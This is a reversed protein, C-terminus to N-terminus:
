KIRRDYIKTKAIEIDEMINTNTNTFESNYVQINGIIGKFTLIKDTKKLKLIDITKM